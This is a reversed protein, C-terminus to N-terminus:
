HLVCRSSPPPWSGRPPSHHEQQQHVTLFATVHISTKRQSGGLEPKTLGQGLGGATVSFPAFKSRPWSATAKPVMRLSVPPPFAESPDQPAAGLRPSPAFGTQLLRTQGPLARHGSSVPSSHSSSAPVWPCHRTGSQAPPAVLAQWAVTGLAAGWPHVWVGLQGGSTDWAM